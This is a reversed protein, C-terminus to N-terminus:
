PGKFAEFTELILYRLSLSSAMMPALVSKLIPLKLVLTPSLGLEFLVGLSNSFPYAISEQLLIKLLPM